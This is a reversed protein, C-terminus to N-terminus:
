DLRRLAVKPIHAAGQFFHFPEEGLYGEMYHYTGIGLSAQLALRQAISAINALGVDSEFSSSLVIVVGKKSAWEYLKLCGGMGGQITPKYILAKLKYLKGLDELSLNEPFSEDVAFPLPFLSLDKPNKFPEEVYDFSNCDFHSFFRLSQEIDWARNVDIRLHFHDKLDYVLDLAEQFPLHGIKVKASIFGEAKRIKAQELVEERTGKFFASVPVKFSSLPSLLSLVASELGFTVSPYLLLNSLTKFCSSLNWEKLLIQHKTNLVQQLAEELSEQSFGPLPAIEGWGYNSKEDVLKVLLGSRILGNRIPIRYSSVSIEQIKM